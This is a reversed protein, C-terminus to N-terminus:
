RNLLYVRGRYSSTRRTRRRLLILERLFRQKEEIPIPSTLVSMPFDINLARWTSEVGAIGPPFLREASAATKLDDLSFAPVTVIASYETLRTVTDGNDSTEVVPAWGGRAMISHFLTELSAPCGARSAHRLLVDFKGQRPFDFCLRVGTVSPDNGSGSDLIRILEPHRASTRFLDAHDFNTLGVRSSATALSETPCVQVPIHALGADTLASFHETQELLLYDDGDMATVLFPHRLFSIEDLDVTMRNELLRVSEFPCLQDTDLLRLQTYIDPEM